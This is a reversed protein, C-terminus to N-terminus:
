PTIKRIIQNQRDAIYLNGQADITVDSPFGFQAALGTGDTDGLIGSGAITIVEYTPAPLTIDDCRIFLGLILFLSVLMYKRKGIM